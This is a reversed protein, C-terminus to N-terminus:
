QPREALFCVDCYPLIWDSTYKTAPSGCNICTHSSINVYKNIINDIEKTHYNTYCRLEGFKEKIQLFHFDSLKNEKILQERLEKCMNHYLKNWGEPIELFPEIEFDNYQTM